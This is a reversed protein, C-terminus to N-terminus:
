ERAVARHLLIASTHWVPRRARWPFPNGHRYKPVDRAEDRYDHRGAEDAPQDEADIAELSRIGNGSSMPLTTTPMM